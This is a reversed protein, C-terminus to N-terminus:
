QDDREREMTRDNMGLVSIKAEYIRNEWGRFCACAWLIVRDGKKVRQMLEHEDTLEITYDEPEMSALRNTHIKYRPQSEQRIDHREMWEGIWGYPGTWEAADDDQGEEDEDASPFHALSAEFWSWSGQDADSAWGQDRSRFSFIIKKLLRIDRASLPRTYLM